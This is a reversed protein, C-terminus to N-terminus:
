PGGGRASAFGDGGRELFEDFREFGAEGVAGDKEEACGWDVLAAAEVLGQLLKAFNLDEIREVGRATAPLFVGRDEDAVAGRRAAQLQGIVGGLKEGHHGAAVAALDLGFEIFEIQVKIACPAVASFF